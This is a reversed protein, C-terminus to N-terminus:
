RTAEAIEDARAYLTDADMRLCRAALPCRHAAAEAALADAEALIDAVSPTRHAIDSAARAIRHLEALGNM